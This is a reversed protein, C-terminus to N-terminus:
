RGLDFSDPIPISEREEMRVMEGREDKEWRVRTRKWRSDEKTEKSRREWGPLGHLGKKRETM